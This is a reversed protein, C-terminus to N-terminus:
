LRPIKIYRMFWILYKADFKNYYNIHFTILFSTIKNTRQNHKNFNQRKMNM